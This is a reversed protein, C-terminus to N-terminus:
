SLYTRSLTSCTRNYIHLRSTVTLDVKSTVHVPFYFKTVVFKSQQLYWNARDYCHFPFNVPSTVPPHSDLSLGSGLLFLVASLGFVKNRGLIICFCNFCIFYPCGPLRVSNVSVSPLGSQWAWLNSKCFIGFVLKAYLCLFSHSLVFNPMSRM